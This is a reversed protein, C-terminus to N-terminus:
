TQFPREPSVLVVKQFDRGLAYAAIMKELERVTGDAGHSVASVPETTNRCVGTADLTVLKFEGPIRRTKRIADRLRLSSEDTFLFLGDCGSALLEPLLDTFPQLDTQREEDYGVGFEANEAPLGAEALAALFGDRRHNFPPHGRDSYFIAPKRCGAELLMQGAIRGAEFNNLAVLCECMGVYNENVGILLAHDKLSFIQQQLERTPADAFIIVEPTKVRHGFLESTDNVDKWIFPKGNHPMYSFIQFNVPSGRFAKELGLAVRLYHPHGPIRDGSAVFAVSLRPLESLKPPMDCIRKLGNERVIKGQRELIELARRLTMVSSGSEHALRREPPLFERGEARQLRIVEELHRVVKGAATYSRAM